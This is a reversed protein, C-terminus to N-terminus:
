LGLGSLKANIQQDLRQIWGNYNSHINTGDYKLNTSDKYKISYKSKDYTITVVAVHERVALTGLIQGPTNEIMKWGLGVGAQIIAKKVDEIQYKGNATIPSDDINLVPNSRCGVLALFSVM